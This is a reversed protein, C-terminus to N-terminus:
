YLREQRRLNGFSGINALMFVFRYQNENRVGPLAFRRYEFSFGCCDWNYTSEIAGYQIYDLHQDYGVSAGGSFGRKGPHGYGVLGRFQNFLSPATGPGPLNEPLRLFAQSAGIFFEGIRYDALVTSANIRGEVTDYDLQWQVDTNASTQVRLRSVIPSWHRQGTLFAINIQALSM